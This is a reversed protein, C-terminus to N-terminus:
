VQILLTIQQQIHPLNYNKTAKVRILPVHASRLVADKFADREKADASNHSADDLEICGVINMGQDLLVFDIHKSSIKNQYSYQKEVGKDVDVIDWLRSKTNVILGLEDTVSRLQRYFNTEAKTLISGRSHYPLAIERKNFFRGILAAFLVGIFVVIIIEM